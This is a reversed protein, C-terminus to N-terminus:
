DSYRRLSDVRSIDGVGAVIQDLKSELFRQQQELAEKMADKVAKAVARTLEASPSGAERTEALKKELDNLTKNLRELDFNLGNYFDREKQLEPPLVTANNLKQIIRPDTTKRYEDLRDITADRKRRTENILLDINESAPQKGEQIMAKRGAEFQSRADEAIKKATEEIRQRMAFMYPDLTKLIGDGIANGIQEGVKFAGIAVGPVLLLGNIASNFFRAAKGVGRAMGIGFSAGATEGASKTTAAVRQTEAEVVRLGAVAKEPPASIDVVLSGVVNGGIQSM